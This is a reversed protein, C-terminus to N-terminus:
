PDKFQYFMILTNFPEWTFDVFFNASLVSGKETKFRKGNKVGEFPNTLM